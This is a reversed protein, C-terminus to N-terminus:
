AAEKKVRAAFEAAFADREREHIGYWEASTGDEFEVLATFKRVGNFSDRHSYTSVHAVVAPHRRVDDASVKRYPTGADWIGCYSTTASV